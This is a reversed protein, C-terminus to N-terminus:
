SPRIARACQNAIADYLEAIRRHKAAAELMLEAVVAYDKSDWPAGASALLDCAQALLDQAETALAGLRADLIKSVM